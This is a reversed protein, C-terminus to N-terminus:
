NEKKWRRLYDRLEERVANEGDNKYRFHIEDHSERSCPFLNDRDYFLEPMKSAEVIHHVQDAPVVDGRRYYAYLDLGNFESLVAERTKQWRATSREKRVGERKEDRYDRKEICACSSGSQIRKGCRSCRKWIM